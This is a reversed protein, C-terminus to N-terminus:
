ACRKSCDRGVQVQRLTERARDEDGPQKSATRLVSISALPLIGFLAGLLLGDLCSTGNCVQQDLRTAGQDIAQASAEPTVEASRAEIVVPDVPLNEEALRRKGLGVRGNGRGNGM